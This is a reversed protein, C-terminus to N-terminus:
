ELIKVRVEGTLLRQMLGKKQLKLVELEKELLEIEKDAAILVEAIKKQEELSPTKIKIELLEKPQIRKSGTGTAIKELQKYYSERSLYYYFWLPYINGIFNFAPIDSSSQYRDLEKPIIAFAGKHLNQKGYIFQGAKRVYQTTAGEIEINKTNRKEIGKLKLRVTLRKNIDSEIAVEKDEKLMTNIKRIEWIDTYEKFRVKGNLLIQMLGKKLVQKTEILQEQKEIALDWKSLIKIIKRQEEVSDPILIESNMFEKQGLTKNRGAGGPSALELIKKGYPTKFLYVLYDIDVENNIPRYMPFRHSCIMGVENETTRGVAQEWAFVINVIFCDKEIWFVAKNGLEEGTVPQKYFLGKGHSKIGIQRYYKEKKIDVKNAVRELINGIKVFNWDVPIVRNKEKKYGEKMSKM